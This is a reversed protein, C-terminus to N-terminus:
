HSYAYFVMSAIAVAATEIRLTSTGLCVPICGEKEAREIEVRAFGGEPGILCLFRKATPCENLVSKLTRTNFETCAILSLDYTRATKVLNEFPTVEEIATVLNRRCQKSAEIAIKGWRELRSPSRDRIDVVTRECHLPILTKVGLEACKQIL